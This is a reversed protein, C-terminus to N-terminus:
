AIRRITATPCGLQRLTGCLSEVTGAWEILGDSQTILTLNLREIIEFPLAEVTRIQWM